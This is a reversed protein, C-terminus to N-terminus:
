PLITTEENNFLGETKLRLLPLFSEKAELRMEQISDYFKGFQEYEQRELLIENIAFEREWKTM